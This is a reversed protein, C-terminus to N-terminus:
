TTKMKQAATEFFLQLETFMNKFAPIIAGLANVAYEGLAIVFPYTVSSAIQSQPMFHLQTLYFLLLAIASLYILVFFVVGGLRNFIGLMLKESVRQMLNSLGRILLVVFAFVLLFSLFPIWKGTLNAATGIKEAVVASLKMAAALGVILALYSCVGAILGKRLGRIAALVAFIVIIIDLVM